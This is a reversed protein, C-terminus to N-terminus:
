RRLLLRAALWMVLLRVLQIGLSLSPFPEPGVSPPLLDDSPPYLLLALGSDPSDFEAFFLFAYINNALHFGIAAGLNGTRATLDSAALGFFFAWIVYEVSDVPNSGSDWHAIAFLLNTGTLWIWPKDFRAALQQQIYGRYFLEEAATQVTLGALAFPLLLLWKGLGFIVANATSWYPPLIEILLFVGLGACLALVFGNRADVTPGILSTPPRFHLHRAVLFVAAALFGFSFLQGLLGAATTGYYYADAVEPPFSALVASIFDLALEYLLEIAIVGFALRYLEPTLRACAIFDSHPLYRKM